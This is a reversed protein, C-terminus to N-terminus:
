HVSEDPEAPEYDFLSKLLRDTVVEGPSAAVIRLVIATV